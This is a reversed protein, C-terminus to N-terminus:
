VVRGDRRTRTGSARGTHPSLLWATRSAFLFNARRRVRHMMRRVHNVGGGDDVGAGLDIRGGFDAGIGDDVARRHEARAHAHERMRLDDSFHGDASARHDSAGGDDAPLRLIETKVGGRVAADHEAFVVGDALVDGDMTAAFVAGDGADAVPIEDHGARVERVVDNQAIAVDERVARQEGPVDMDSVVGEDAAARYKVLEQADTIEAHHLSVAAEALIDRVVAGCLADVADGAEIHDAQAAIAEARLLARGDFLEEM